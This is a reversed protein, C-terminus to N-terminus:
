VRLKCIDCRQGHWTYEGGRQRGVAPWLLPAKGDWGGDPPPSIDAGRHLLEQGDHKLSLLNAGLTPSIIAELRHPGGADYLTVTPVGQTDTHLWSYRM